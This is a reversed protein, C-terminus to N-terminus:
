QGIQEAEITQGEKQVEPQIEPKHDEDLEYIQTEVIELMKKAIELTQKNKITISGDGTRVEGYLRVGSTPTTNSVQTLASQKSPIFMDGRDAEEERYIQSDNSTRLIPFVENFLKQLIPRHKNSTIWDVGILASIRASFANEDPMEGNWADFAKGIISVNRIATLKGRTESLSDYPNLAGKALEAAKLVGRERKVLGFMCIDDLRKYVTGSINSKDGLKYGLERAAQSNSIIGGFKNLAANAIKLADEFSATEPYEYDGIKTM